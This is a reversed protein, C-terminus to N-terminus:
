PEDRFPRAWDPLNAAYAVVAAEPPGNHLGFREIMAVGHAARSKIVVHQGDELFGWGEIFPKASALKAILKGRYCIALQSGIPIGNYLRVSKQNPTLECVIWGVYGQPSVKPDMCNGKRTWADATGDSYTVIVDGVSDNSGFRHRPDIRAKVPQKTLEANENQGKSTMGGTVLCLSLLLRVMMKM